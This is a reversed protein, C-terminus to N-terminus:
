PTNEYQTNLVTNNVPRTRVERLHLGLSGKRVQTEFGEGNKICHLFM